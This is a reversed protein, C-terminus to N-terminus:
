INVSFQAPLLVYLEWMCGRVIIWNRRYNVDQMLTSYLGINISDNVSTWLKCYPDNKTNYLEIFKQCIYLVMYGGYCYICFLYM